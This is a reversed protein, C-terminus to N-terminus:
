EQQYVNPFQKRFKYPTLGTKEKFMNIFHSTNNFGVAESIERVSMNTFQLYEKAHTLRVNIIYDIPSFGIYKKFEKAFHFKSVCYEKEFYDLSLNDAFHMKIDKLASNIYGPMNIHPSIIAEAAFLIETLLAVLLNSTSFETGVSSTKNTEVINNLIDHIKPFKTTNLININATKYQNYYGRASIGNFQVWLLDWTGPGKTSTNHTHHEMSDVFVLDGKKLEYSQNGINYTGQGGTTLMVLFSSVNSYETYYGSYAHFIGTEQVYLLFSSATDSPTNFIWVSDDSLDPTFQKCLEKM